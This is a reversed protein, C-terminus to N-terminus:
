FQYSLSSFVFHHICALSPWVWYYSLFLMSTIWRPLYLNLKGPFQLVTHVSNKLALTIPLVWSAVLSINFASCAFGEFCFRPCRCSLIFAMCRCQSDYNRSDLLECYSIVCVTQIFVMPSVFKVKNKDNEGLDVPSNQLVLTEPYSLRSQLKRSFCFLHLLISSALLPIM